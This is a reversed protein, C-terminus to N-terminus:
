YIRGEIGSIAVVSHVPQAASRFRVDVSCRRVPQTAELIIL